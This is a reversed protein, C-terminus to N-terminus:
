VPIIKQVLNQIEECCSSSIALPNASRFGRWNEFIYAKSNLVSLFDSDTAPAAPLNQQEHNINCPELPNLPLDDRIRARNCM